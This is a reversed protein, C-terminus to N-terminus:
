QASIEVNVPDQAIAPKIFNGEDFIQFIVAEAVDNGHGDGVRNLM